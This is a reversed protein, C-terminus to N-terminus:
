AFLYLLLVGLALRYIVFPLMGIREILTLFIGIALWASAASVALVAVFAPVDIDADLIQFRYIEHGGALLIVPIALLFSFRAASRRDLGLMLGATITIGSRSTGPILALVQALGVWIADKLALQGEGRARKGTLDAWWLLLGFTITAVAILVPSRFLTAVTDYMLYGAAAIPLTGAILYWCLCAERTLTQGGLSRLWDIGIRHLESRFYIFVAILSGLHAAIDYALGQDKWGALKPLLVLHASSSVPLFETFGQVIGLIILHFLDL